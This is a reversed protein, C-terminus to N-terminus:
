RLNPNDLDRQSRKGACLSTRARTQQTTTGTSRDPSAASEVSEAGKAKEAPTPKRQEILKTEM